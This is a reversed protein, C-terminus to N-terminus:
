RGGAAITPALLAVMQALEARLATLDEAQAAVRHDFARRLEANETELRALDARSRRQDDALGQVAAALLASLREYKVGEVEGAENMTVLRPDIRAVEEAVFGIDAQGSETWTYAVPRLRALTDVGLDLDAIDSKYRASSSCSAIQNDANRCLQTAGASGLTDVRLTGDVRLRNGAPSNTGGGTFLAGGQARVLFQNTGSTVFDAVMADAWVFSGWDGLAHDPNLPVGECGRGPAGVNSGPRIKARRGAAWSYSAGACVDNGGGVGSAYGSATNNVGGAVVAYRDSATNHQGGAVTAFSSFFSGVGAADGAQNGFGGGVTGYHGEVRNPAGNAFNHDSHGPPVGGGSITAGRVNAAVQNAPSGM